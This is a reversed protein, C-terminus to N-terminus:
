SIKNIWAISKELREEHPGKLILFRADVTKLLSEYLDFLLLRDDPNERLPDPEWPIDPYCLLYLRNKHRAPPPCCPKKLVCPKGSQLVTWDTDCVLWKKSYSEYWREWADQGKYISLLDAQVYDRGLSNLYCRAFEPTWPEGLARALAPALTSKGSSEPGTVVIKFIDQDSPMTRRYQISKRWLIIM